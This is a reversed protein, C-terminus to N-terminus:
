VVLPTTPITRRLALYMKGYATTNYEKESDKEAGAPSAYTTTIDGVKEQTLAGPAQAAAGGRRTMLHATLYALALDAKSPAAVTGPVGWAAPNVQPQAYGIFRQMRADNPGSDGQPIEPAIDALIPPVITNAM